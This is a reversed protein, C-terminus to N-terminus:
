TEFPVDSQRPADPDPDPDSDFDFDFRTGVSGSGSLSKSLSPCSENTQPEAASAGLVKRWSM